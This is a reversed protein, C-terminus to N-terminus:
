ALSTAELRIILPWSPTIFRSHIKSLLPLDGNIVCSSLKVTTTLGVVDGGVYYIFIFFWHSAYTISLFPLYHNVAALTISGVQPESIALAVSYSL